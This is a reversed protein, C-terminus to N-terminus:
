FIQEWPAHMGGLYSFLFQSRLDGYIYVHVHFLVLLKTIISKLNNGRVYTYM